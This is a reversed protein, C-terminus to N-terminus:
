KKLQYIGRGASAFRKEKILTQNVLARFNASNSRYGAAKVKSVIDGVGLPKGASRLASEMTAVLSESNQARGSTVARGGNLSMIQRDMQELKKALKSRQKSLETLKRRHSGLMQELQSITMSKNVAPRPM